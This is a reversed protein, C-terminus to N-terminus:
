VPLAPTLVPLLNHTPAHDLSIRLAQHLVSNQNKKPKPYGNKLVHIYEATTYMNITPAAIMQCVLDRDGLCPCCCTVRSVECESGWCFDNNIFIFYQGSWVIHLARDVARDHDIM